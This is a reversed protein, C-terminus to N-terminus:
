SATRLNLTANAANSVLCAEVISAAKRSPLEPFRQRLKAEFDELSESDRLIGAVPSLSDIMALALTEAQGAAIADCADRVANSRRTLAPVVADASLAALRAQIKKRTEAVLQQDGARNLRELALTLENFSTIEQDEQDDIPPPGLLGESGPQVVAAARRLGLGLRGSLTEIGDDTLEVGADKLAPLVAGIASLEAASEGGWAVTPSRGQWGNLRCLSDFIQTRMVHGLRRGDFQRIDQRVAEQITAQGGGLGVNQATSSMTQGVIVKSLEANAVAHFKEFADGAGATAAQELEIEVHKPVALGFVKSATQFAQGLVARAADDTDDYKAVMFPSGFRDLFRAWWHRDMVSFLWWFVVARMPGGWTDPLGAHVHLRGIVYRMPDADHKTSLRNGRADVDWIRLYGDTWDLLRHPVPRLEALEYHWGPKTSPRYIKELLAVPYLTADLLHLQADLLEDLEDLNERIANAVSVDAPNEDDCAEVRMEDGLVALKRKGFESSCHSHGAVIDRALSFYDTLDGHAAADLIHHLADVSMGNAIPAPEQRVDLWKRVSKLPVLRQIISRLNM